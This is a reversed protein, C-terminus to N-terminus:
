RPAGHDDYTLVDDTERDRADPLAAFRAGLELLDKALMGPPRPAGGGYAAHRRRMADLFARREVAGRERDLRERLAEKVASAVSEGTLRSLEDAMAGVEDDQITLPM